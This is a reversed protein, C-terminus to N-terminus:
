ALPGCDKRAYEDRPPRSGFLSYAREHRLGKVHLWGNILFVFHSTESSNNACALSCILASSARLPRWNIEELPVIEKAVWTKMEMESCSGITLVFPVILYDKKESQNFICVVIYIRRSFSNRLITDRTSYPAWMRLRFLSQLKLKHFIYYFTQEWFTM